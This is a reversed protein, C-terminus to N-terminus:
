KLFVCVLLINTYCCIIASLCISLSGLLWGGKSFTFPLGLVGSGVISIIINGFTRSFSGLYEQGDEPLLLPVDRSDEM